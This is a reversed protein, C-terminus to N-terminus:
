NCMVMRYDLRSLEGSEPSRLGYIVETRAQISGLLANGLDLASSAANGSYESRDLKREVAVPSNQSETTM